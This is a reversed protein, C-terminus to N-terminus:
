MSYTLPPPYQIYNSITGIKTNDGIISGVPLSEPMIHQYKTYYDVNNITTKIIVYANQSSQLTTNVEVVEGGMIPYVEEGAAMNFDTGQHPNTGNSTRAQNTKSIVGVNVEDYDDGERAPSKAVTIGAADFYQTFVHYGNYAEVNIINFISFLLIVFVISYKKKM